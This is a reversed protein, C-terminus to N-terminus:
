ILDEDDDYCGAPLLDGGPCKGDCVPCVPGDDFEDATPGPDQGLAILKEADADLAASGHTRYGPHANGDSDYVVPVDKRFYKGDTGKVVTVERQPWGVPLERAAKALRTEEDEIGKRLVAESLMRALERAEDLTLTAQSKLEWHKLTLTISGVGRAILVRGTSPSM